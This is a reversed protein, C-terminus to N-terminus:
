RDCGSGVRGSSRDADIGCTTACGTASSASPRTRPSSRVGALLALGSLNRGHSCLQGSCIERTDLLGDSRDHGTRVARRVHSATSPWSPQHRFATSPEDPPGGSSDLGPLRCSTSTTTSSTSAIRRSWPRAIHLAEHVKPTVQADEEYGAPAVAERHGVSM